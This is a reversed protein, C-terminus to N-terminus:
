TNCVNNNESYPFVPQGDEMAIGSTRLHELQNLTLSGATHYGLLNRTPFHAARDQCRVADPLDWVIPNEFPNATHALDQMIRQRFVLPALENGYLFHNEATIRGFHGNANPRSHAEARVSGYDAHDLCGFSNTWHQFAERVPFVRKGILQLLEEDLISEKTTQSRLFAQRTHFLVMFYYEFMSRSIERRWFRSVACLENYLSDMLDSFGQGSQSLQSIIRAPQVILGEVKEFGDLMGLDKFEKSTNSKSETMENSVKNLIKIKSAKKQQYPQKKDGKETLQLRVNPDPKSVEGEIAEASAQRSSPQIAEPPHDELSPVPLERSRGFGGGRRGRRGGCICSSDTPM